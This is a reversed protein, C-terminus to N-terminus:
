KSVKRRSQAQKLHLTEYAYLTNSLLTAVTMPGVGGPVPTIWAAHQKAKEFDVDGILHGNDLRNMGVDVVIAGSKIWDGPVLGPSGAAVVLLDANKVAARLDKTLTHCATVTCGAMLLELLMPRGVINSIGIVTANLGKLSIGSSELLSMIGAPTCPRLVPCQQALRGLNYPHFGDVDKDPRIAELIAQTEIHSPLPLQVLIGDVLPDHNLKNLLKLLEAQTCDSDLNFSQSQIGVKLCAQYKNRVYITSAPDNGLLIVALGPQRHGMHTHKQIRKLIETKVNEAIKNGDLIQAPM